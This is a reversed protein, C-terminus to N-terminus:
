EVVGVGGYMRRYWDVLQIRESCGTERRARTIYNQVTRPDIDLLEAIETTSNSLSLLKIVHLQQTTLTAVRRGFRAQAVYDAVAPSLFTQQAHAAQIAVVIEGVLDEKVVYGRVGEGLLEPALDMSSSFAVIEVRPYQYRVQRVLALPAGGMGGLDLVVVDAPTTELLDLVDQFSRAIGALRCIPSEDIVKALGEVTIPHDDAIIVNIPKLAVTDRRKDLALGVDVRV